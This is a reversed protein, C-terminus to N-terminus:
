LLSSGADCDVGAIAGFAREIARYLSASTANLVAPGRRLDRLDYIRKRPQLHFLSERAGHAPHDLRAGRRSVVVERAIEPLTEHRAAFAWRRHIQQHVRREHLLARHECEFAGKKRRLVGRM